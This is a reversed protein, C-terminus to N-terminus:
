TAQAPARGRHLPCPHPVIYQSRLPTYVARMRTTATTGAVVDDDEEIFRRALMGTIDQLRVCACAPVCCRRGPPAGRTLTRTLVHTRACTQTHTQTNTQTHTHTYQIILALLFLFWDLPAGKSAAADHMLLILQSWLGLRAGFSVVVGTSAPLRPPLLLWCRTCVAVAQRGAVCGCLWLRGVVCGCGCGVVRLSMRLSLRLLGVMLSQMPKPM